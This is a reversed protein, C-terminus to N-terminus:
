LEVYRRDAPFVLPPADRVGSMDGTDFYGIWPAAVDAASHRPCGRITGVPSNHERCQSENRPVHAQFQPVAVPSKAAGERWETQLEVISGEAVKVKDSVKRLDVRLLSVEVVVTAIKGELAVSSGQVAVLLEARSPAEAAVLTSLVDGHGGLRTQGQPLPVLMTYQEMTNGQSTTAQRHREM